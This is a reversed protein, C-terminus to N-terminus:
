LKWIFEDIQIKNLGKLNRYIRRNTLDKQSQNEILLSELSGMLSILKRNRLSRSKFKLQNKKM